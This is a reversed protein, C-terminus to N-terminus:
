SVKSLKLEEKLFDMTEKHKLHKGLVNKPFLTYFYLVLKCINIFQERMDRQRRGTHKKGKEVSQCM